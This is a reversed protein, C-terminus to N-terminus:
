AARAAKKATSSRTARNASSAIRVAGTERLCYAIRQATHRPVELHEALHGTHFTTPLETPLLRRLDALTKFRHTEVVEVLKQDEVQFDDRRWRRRRGHGPYRWEEVEVLPVRSRLGNTRSSRSSTSWSTSCIWCRRESPPEPPPGGRQRAASGAERAGQTSGATQGRAGRHKSLLTKVKKRIAALSGHQIEVLVGRRIADIRYGDCAVETLDGDAYLSKLQRHLSTEMSSIRFESLWSFCSFDCISIIHAKPITHWQSQWHKYLHYPTHHNIHTPSSALPQKGSASAM